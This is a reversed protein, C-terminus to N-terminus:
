PSRRPTKTRLSGWQLRASCSRPAWSGVWKPADEVVEADAVDGGVGRLGLAADFAEPLGQLIAEDAFQAQAVDARHGRGVGEQGREQGVEGRAERAGGGVGSGSPAGGGAIEGGDQATAVGADDRM